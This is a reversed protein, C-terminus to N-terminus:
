LPVKVAWLALQADCLPNRIAAQPKWSSRSAAHLAAGISELASENSLLGFEDAQSVSVSLLTILLMASCSSSVVHTFLAVCCRVSYVTVVAPPHVPVPLTHQLLYAVHLVLCYCSPVM